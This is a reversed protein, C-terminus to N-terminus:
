EGGLNRKFYDSLYPCFASFLVQSNSQIMQAGVLDICHSAQNNSVNIILGTGLYSLFATYPLESFRNGLTRSTIALSLVDIGIFVGSTTGSEFQNSEICAEDYSLIASIIDLQPPPQTPFFNVQNGQFLVRGDLTKTETAFGTTYDSRMTASELLGVAQKSSLFFRGLNMILLGAPLWAASPQQRANLSTLSNNAVSMPGHGNVLLSQGAPTSVVNDHIRLAPIGYAQTVM